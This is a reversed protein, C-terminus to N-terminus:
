HILASQGQRHPIIIISIALYIIGLLIVFPILQIVNIIYVLLGALFAFISVLLISIGMAILKNFACNSRMFAAGACTCASTNSYPTSM